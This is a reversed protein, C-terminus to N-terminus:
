PPAPLSSLAWCGSLYSTITPLLPDRWVGLCRVFCPRVRARPHLADRLSLSLVCTARWVLTPSAAPTDRTLSLPPPHWLSPLSDYASSGPGFCCDRRLPSLSVHAASRRSCPRRQRARAVGRCGGSRINSLPSASCGSLLRLGVGHRCHVRVCIGRSEMSAACAPVNSLSNRRVQPPHVATAMTSPGGLSKNQTATPRRSSRPRDVQSARSAKRPQPLARGALRIACRPLRRPTATCATSRHHPVRHLPSADVGGRRWDPNNKESLFSQGSLRAAPGALTCASKAHWWVSNVECVCVCVCVCVRHGHSFTGLAFLETLDRRASRAASQNPNIGFGSPYWYGAFNRRTTCANYLAQSAAMLQNTLGSGTGGFVVTPVMDHAHCSPRYLREVVRAERQSNGDHGPVTTEGPGSCLPKGDHIHQWIRRAASQKRDLKSSHALLTELEHFAPGIQEELSPLRPRPQWREPLLFHLVSQM